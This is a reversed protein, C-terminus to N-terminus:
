QRRLKYAELVNRGSSTVMRGRQGSLEVKLM